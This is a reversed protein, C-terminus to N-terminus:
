SAFPDGFFFPMGAGDRIKTILETTAAELTKDERMLEYWFSLKGERVRYRLRAEIRYADGAWFVPIGVAFREFMQMKALTQSDDDQTFAMQVGGNQLRIASKFRMDQNAEFSLAMELMQAGSPSNEGGTIDKLNDEIFAAFAAQTMPTKNSSIWRKWETSFTPAFRATHDRWQAKDADDGHDNIIALFGVDGAQYDATGWITCNTPSGHRKVYGIFSDADNTKIKARKRAPAPLLKEDDKETITWGPPLAVRRLHAAVGGTLVDVPAKMERALTEAINTQDENLM